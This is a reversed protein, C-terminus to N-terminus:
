SCSGEKFITFSLRVYSITAVTNDLHQACEAGGIGRDPLTCWEPVCRCFSGKPEGDQQDDRGLM